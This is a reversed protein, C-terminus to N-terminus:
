LTNEKEITNLLQKAEKISHPYNNDEELLEICMKLAAKLKDFLLNDKQKQWNAGDMWAYRLCGNDNVSYPNADELSENRIDTTTKHKLQAPKLDRWTGNKDPFSVRILEPACPSYIVEGKTNSLDYVIDGIKFDITTKDTNLM